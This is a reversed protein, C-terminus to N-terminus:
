TQFLIAMSNYILHAIFGPMISKTRLACRRLFFGAALANLVPIWGSYIHALAFLLLSIIEATWFAANNCSLRDAGDEKKMIKSQIIKKLTCPLYGRYLSEEFFASLVISTLCIFYGDATKRMTIEQGSNSKLAVALLEFLVATVFLLGLTVFFDSSLMIIKWGGSVAKENNKEFWNWRSFNKNELYLFLAALFNVLVFPSFNSFNIEAGAKSDPMIFLPPFVFFLLIIFFQLFFIKKIM